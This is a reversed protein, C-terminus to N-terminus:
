KKLWKSFAKFSYPRWLFNSVLDAADLSGGPELVTKRYRHAIDKDMLNEPNFGTMLDKAIVLSWMYTYYNSSYGYLHTWSTWMHTGELHESYIEEWLKAFDLNAPDPHTHMRFAVTALFAQRRVHLVKGFEKIRSLKEALEEPIPEGTEYHKGIRRLVQPDGLWEELLQSPTEVFDRQTSIGSYSVWKQKGAFVNHLLHGFEHFFTKVQGFQMLGSDSKREGPFNCMLVVEPIQKDKIGPVLTGCAAHKYKGNRPHMDLYIRGIIETGELVDYCEVSRHWVSIDSNPIFEIGFLDGYVSLIGQKVQGYSFYEMVVNSDFDFIERKVAEMFYMSNWSSISDKKVGKQAMHRLILKREKKASRRTSTDLFDIFDAINGASGSMKTEAEYEAWNEYGLIRAKQLRKVLINRLVAENEPALTNSARYLEKRVRENKCFEMVPLCDPYNTTIIISGDKGRGLRGIVSEPVGDLESADGVAVTNVAEAYNRDFESGLKSLEVGLELITGRTKDDRDIGNRKYGLLSKEMLRKTGADAGSFDVLKEAEFLDRNLSLQFYFSDIEQDCKEAMARMSKAPHLHQINSIRYSMNYLRVYMDNLPELTNEVTRKGKVSLVTSIINKADALREGTANRLDSPKLQKYDWKPM